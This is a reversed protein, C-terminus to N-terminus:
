LFTECSYTDGKSLPQSASPIEPYIGVDDVWQYFTDNPYLDLAGGVYVKFPWWVFLESDKQTRGRYDIITEGNVAAWVRGDTPDLKWFVEFVFWEGVPVPVYSICEWVEPSNQLDGFQAHSRWFLGEVNRDRQININWRFDARPEGTEKWEMVMRSRKEGAPLVVDLDPQVKLRHRLYAQTLTADPYIGFQNRTGESDLPDEKRLEMFLARTPSGNWGSTEEIRTTVYESLNALTQQSSVLYTFRNDPSSRKPLDADWAYGQDAGRIFQAWQDGTVEPMDLSVGAEFGSLFQGEFPEGTPLIQSGGKGCGFPGLLLFLLLIRIREANMDILGAPPSFTESSEFFFRPGFPGRENDHKFDFKGATQIVTETEVAEM